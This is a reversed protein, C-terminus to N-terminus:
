GSLPRDQTDDCTAERYIADLGLRHAIIAFRDFSGAVLRNGSRKVDNRLGPPCLCTRQQTVASM